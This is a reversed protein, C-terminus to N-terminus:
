LSRRRRRSAAAAAAAAATVAAPRVAPTTPADAAAAGTRFVRAYVAVPGPPPRYWGTPTDAALPVTYTESVPAFTIAVMALPVVVATAPDSVAKPSCPSPPWAVAADSYWGPPVATSALPSRNMASLPSLTIRSTVGAPTMELIAPVPM